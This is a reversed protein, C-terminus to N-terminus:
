FIQDSVVKNLIQKINNGWTIRKFIHVNCDSVWAQFQITCLKTSLSQCLLSGKLVCYFYVCLSDQNDSVIVCCAPTIVVRYVCVGGHLLTSIARKSMVFAGTHARVGNALWVGGCGILRPSTIVCFGVCYHEITSIKVPRVFIRTQYTMCFINEGCMIRMCDRRRSVNVCKHTSTELAPPSLSVDVKLTDGGNVGGFFRRGGEGRSRRRSRIRIRPPPPSSSSSLLCMDTSPVAWLTATTPTRIM